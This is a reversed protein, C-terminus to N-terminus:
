EHIIPHSSRNRNPRGIEIRIRTRGEKRGRVFCKFGSCMFLSPVFLKFLHPLQARPSLNGTHFHPKYSLFVFSMRWFSINGLLCNRSVDRSNDCATEISQDPSVMPLVRESSWFTGRQSTCRALIEFYSTWNFRRCM